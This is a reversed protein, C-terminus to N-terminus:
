LQDEVEAWVEQVGELFGYVAEGDPSPSGLRIEWFDRVEQLEVDDLLENEHKSVCAKGLWFPDGGVDDWMSEGIYKLQVYDADQMAWERGIAKGKEAADLGAVVKSAQLRTVAGEINEVRQRAEMTRIEKEFANQAIRSWNVSEGKVDMETKLEDPISINMRAM